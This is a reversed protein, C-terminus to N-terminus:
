RTAIWIQETTDTCGDPFSRAIRVWNVNGLNLKEAAESPLHFHIAGNVADSKSLVVSQFAEAPRAACITFTDDTVDEVDGNQDRYVLEFDICSGYTVEVPNYQSMPM